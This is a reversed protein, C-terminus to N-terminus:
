VLKKAPEEPEWRFIVYLSIAVVFTLNPVLSKLSNSAGSNIQYTAAYVDVFMVLILTSLLIVLRRAINESRKLSRVFFWAVFVGAASPLVVSMLGYTFPNTTAASALMLSPISIGLAKAGFYSLFGTMAAAILIIKEVTREESGVLRTIFAAIALMGVIVFLHTLVLFLIAM